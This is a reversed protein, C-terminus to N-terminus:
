AEEFMGISSYKNIRNTIREEPSSNKLEDLQKLIAKKVNRCTSKVDKHAGGLPEHIVGDILNINCLDKPTLKMQDAAKEKYDWNKWLISSCVEPSIVSLWTNELMLMRDGLAIGLAGGAAGEGIVISIVPVRLTLMEQLNTAIAEAQGHTEADQGPSAGPTDIFTVIPKNFKEALKMLRLAKRYGEPSAMGFNRFQKEKMSRGKQHGIILVKEGDISAFGGVIASDDGNKRDGHLEVFDSTISNIYDLTYPREAHRSLQVKQWGSLNTYINKKLSRLDTQLKLLQMRKKEADLKSQKLKDIKEELEVIPKEFDLM